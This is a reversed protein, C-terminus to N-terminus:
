SVVMGGVSFRGQITSIDFAEIREPLDEMSLTDQLESLGSM